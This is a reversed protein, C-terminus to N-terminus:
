IANVRALKLASPCAWFAGYPSRFCFVIFFTLGLVLNHEPANQIEMDIEPPIIDFVLATMTEGCKPPVISIKYGRRKLDKLIHEAAKLAQPDILEEIARVDNKKKM